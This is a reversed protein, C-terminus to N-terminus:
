APGTGHAAAHLPGAGRSVWAVASRGSRTKRVGAVRLYGLLVLERRRASVTQHKMALLVELEDDTVGRDGSDQIAALVQGRMSPAAALVSIAAALSTDTRQHPPIGGYPQEFIELQLGGRM